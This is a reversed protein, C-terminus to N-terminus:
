LLLPLSLIDSKCVGYKHRLKSASILFYQNYDLLSPPDNDTLSKPTYFTQM